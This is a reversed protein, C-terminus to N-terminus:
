DEAFYDSDIRNIEYLQSLSVGVNFVIMLQSLRTGDILVVKPDITSAYDLADFSFRRTTLFVGKKAREGHLVGVVKQIEPRGVTNEWRKAQLYIVDLGLQDENIIGDVGADAGIETLRAAGERAWGYGMTLMLDLVLCEFFEPSAAKVQHLLEAARLIKWTESRKSM